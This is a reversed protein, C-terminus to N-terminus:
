SIFIFCQKGTNEERGLFARRMSKREIKLNSMFHFHFVIGLFFHKRGKGLFTECSNPDIFCPLNFFFFFCDHSLLSLNEARHADPHSGLAPQPGRLTEMLLVPQAQSPTFSSSASLSSAELHLQPALSPCLQLELRAPCPGPSNM